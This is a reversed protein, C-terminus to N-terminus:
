FFGLIQRRQSQIVESRVFGKVNVRATARTLKRDKLLIITWRIPTVRATCGSAVAPCQASRRRHVHTSQRRSVRSEHSPNGGSPVAPGCLHERNGKKLFQEVARRGRVQVAGNVELGEDRQPSQRRCGRRLSPAPPLAAAPPPRRGHGLGLARCLVPTLVTVAFPHAPPQRTPRERGAQVQSM